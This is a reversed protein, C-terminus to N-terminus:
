SSQLRFGRFEFFLSSKDEPNEPVRFDGPNEYAIVNLATRRQRRVRKLRGKAQLAAICESM